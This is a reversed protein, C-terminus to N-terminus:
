YKGGTMIYFLHGNYDMLMYYHCDRWKSLTSYLSCKFDDGNKEVMPFKTRQSYYSEDLYIPHEAFHKELLAKREGFIASDNSIKKANKYIESNADLVKPYEFKTNEM